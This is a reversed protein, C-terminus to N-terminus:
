RRFDKCFAAYRERADVLVPNGAPARRELIAIAERYEADARSKQRNLAHVSASSLLAKATDRSEGYSERIVPIAKEVLVSAEKRKHNSAYVVALDISILAATPSNPGSAATVQHLASTFAEEALARRGEVYHVSGIGHLALAFRPDNRERYIREAKKLLPMAREPKHNERLITALTLMADAAPPKSANPDQELEIALAQSLTSEADELRGLDRYLLGLGNLVSAIARPDAASARLGDYARSLVSEAAPLRGQRRYTEGLNQLSLLTRVDTAGRTRAHLEVASRFLTEADETRGQEIRLEGLADLSLALDAQATRGNQEFTTKAETLLPEARTPDGKLHYLYGLAYCIRGREMVPARARGAERRSEVILVEAREYDGRALAAIGEALDARWSVVNPARAGATAALVLM